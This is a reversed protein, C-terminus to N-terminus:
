SRERTKKTTKHASMTEAVKLYDPAGDTTMSMVQSDTVDFKELVNMVTKKLNASTQKKFVEVVGLM